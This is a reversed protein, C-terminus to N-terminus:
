TAYGSFEPPTLLLPQAPFLPSQDARPLIGERQTHPVARRTKGGLASLARLGRRWVVGALRALLPSPITYRIKGRAASADITETRREPLDRPGSHRLM